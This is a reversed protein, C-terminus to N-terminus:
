PACALLRRMDDAHHADDHAFQEALVKLGLNEGASMALDRALEQLQQENHLLSIIMQHLDSADAMKTVKPVPEGGYSTMKMAIQYVHTKEDGFHELFHGHVADRFHARLRDGYNMYLIMTSYKLELIKQLKSLVEELPVAFLGEQPSLAGPHMGESATQPGPDMPPPAMPPAAAAPPAMATMAAADGQQTIEALARKWFTQNM